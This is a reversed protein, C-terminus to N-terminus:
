VILRFFRAVKKPLRENSFFKEKMKSLIERYFVERDFGFGRRDELELSEEGLGGGFTIPFICFDDEDDLEELVGLCDGVFGVTARTM